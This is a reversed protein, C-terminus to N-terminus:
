LEELNKIAKDIRAEFKEHTFLKARKRGKEILEDRLKNNNQLSIILDAIEQADYPNEIYLVADGGAEPLAGKGSTIVPIGSEMAEIIILGIGEYVSPFVFSNANDFLAYKDNESIYGTFLINDRIHPAMSEYKEYIEEFGYGPAGIIVLPMRIRDYALAYADFLTELNKRKELTSTFLLYNNSKLHKDRLINSPSLESRRSSPTGFLVHVNAHPAISLVKQKTDESNALIMDSFNATNYIQAAFKSPTNNDPPTEILELPMVDHVFQVLKVRNGIDKKRIITPTVTLVVDVDHSRVVRRTARRVTRNYNRTLFQYFYPAQIYFDISRLLKVRDSVKTKDVVGERTKYVAGTLIARLVNLRRYGGRVIYRFSQRGELLYHQLRLLELKSDIDKSREFKKGQPYGVLIGVEHGQKRLSNILSKGIFDIGRNTSEEFDPSVVLIKM